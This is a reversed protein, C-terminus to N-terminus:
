FISLVSHEEKDSCEAYNITKSFNERVKEATPETSVPFGAANPLFILTRIRCLSIMPRLNNKLSNERGAELLETKLRGGWATTMWASTSTSPM